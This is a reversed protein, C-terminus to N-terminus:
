QHKIISATHLSAGPWCRPALHPAPPYRTGSLTSILLIFLPVQTVQWKKCYINLYIVAAVHAAVGAVGGRRSPSCFLSCCARPRPPKNLYKTGTVSTMMISDRSLEAPYFHAYWPITRRYNLRLKLTEWNLSTSMSMSTNWYLDLVMGEGHQFCRLCM